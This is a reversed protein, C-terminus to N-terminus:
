GVDFDERCLNALMEAEDPVARKPELPANATGLWSAHECEADGFPVGTSTTRCNGIGEFHVLAFNPEVTGLFCSELYRMAQSHSVGGRIAGYRCVRKAEASGM